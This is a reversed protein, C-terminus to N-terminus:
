VADVFNVLLNFIKNLILNVFWCGKIMINIMKFIHMISLILLIIFRRNIALSLIFIPQKCSREIWFIRINAFYTAFIFVEVM